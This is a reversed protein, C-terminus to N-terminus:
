RQIKVACLYVNKAYSVFMEGGKKYIPGQRWAPLINYYSFNEFLLKDSLFINTVKCGSLSFCRNCTLFCPLNASHDIASSEFDPIGREPIPPKFGEGEASLLRVRRLVSLFGNFRSGKKQQQFDAM